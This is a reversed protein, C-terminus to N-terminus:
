YPWDRPERGLEKTDVEIEGGQWHEPEGIIRTYDRGGDIAVSWCNCERYDHTHRSWIIDNCQTCRIAAVKIKM